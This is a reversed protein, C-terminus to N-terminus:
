ASSRRLQCHCRSVISRWASLVSATLRNTSAHQVRYGSPSTVWTCLAVDRGLILTYRAVDGLVHHARRDRDPANIAIIAVPDRVMVPGVPGFRISCSVTPTSVNIPRITCCVIGLPKLRM